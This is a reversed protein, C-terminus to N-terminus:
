NRIVFQIMSASEMLLALGVHVIIGGNINKHNLAIVGLIYGGFFSSITEAVPKGFHSFGYFSDMALVSERGLIKALAIVM